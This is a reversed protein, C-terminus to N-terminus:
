YGPIVWPAELTKPIISITTTYTLVAAALPEGTQDHYQSAPIRTSRSSALIEGLLAIHAYTTTPFM